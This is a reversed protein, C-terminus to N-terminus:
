SPKARLCCSPPRRWLICVAATPDPMVVTKGPSLLKATQAMFHVGCFVIVQAETAAAQQSLGLSDGLFDAVDQIEPRQYNHVLIVANRAEKLQKIEEAIETQDTM